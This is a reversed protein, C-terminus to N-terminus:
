QDPVYKPNYEFETQSEGWSTLEEVRRPRQTGEYIALGVLGLSRRWEFEHMGDYLLTARAIEQEGADITITRVAAVGPYQRFLERTDESFLYIYPGVRAWLSGGRALHDQPQRFRLEVVNGSVDANMFGGHKNFLAEAQEATAVPGPDRQLLDCSALLAGLLVPAIMTRTHRLVRM